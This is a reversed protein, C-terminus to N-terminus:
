VAARMAVAAGEPDDEPDCSAPTGGGSVLATPAPQSTGAPAPLSLMCFWPPHHQQSAVWDAAEETIRSSSYQTRLWQRPAELELDMETEVWRFHGNLTNFNVASCGADCDASVTWGGESAEMRPVGGATLCDIAALGDVCEDASLCCAGIGEPVGCSFTGAPVQGGVSGDNAPMAEIPGVFTDFGAAYVPSAVGNPGNRGLDHRGILATQFGAYELMDPMTWEAPHLQTPAVIGAAADGVVRNRLPYRGTLTAARSAAGDAMSWANTFRVSSESLAGLLPLSADVGDWGLLDLQGVGLDDCMILIINPNGPRAQPAAILAAATLLALM